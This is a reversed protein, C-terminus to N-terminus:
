IEDARLRKVTIEIFAKLELGKDNIWYEKLNQIVGFEYANKIESKCARVVTDITVGLSRAVHMAAEDLTMNEVCLIAIIERM